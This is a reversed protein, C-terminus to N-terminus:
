HLISRLILKELYKQAEKKTKSFSYYLFFMKLRFHTVASCCTYSNYANLNNQRLVLFTQIMKATSHLQM